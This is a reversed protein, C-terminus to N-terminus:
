GELGISYAARFRWWAAAPIIDVALPALGIVRHEHCIVRALLVLRDVIEKRLMVHVRDENGFLQTVAWLMQKRQRKEPGLALHLLDRPLVQQVM